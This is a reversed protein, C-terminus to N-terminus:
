NNWCNVTAREVTDSFLLKALVSICHYLVTKESPFYSFQGRLGVECESQM